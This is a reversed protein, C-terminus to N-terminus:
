IGIEDLLALADRVELEDNARKADDASVVSLSKVTCETTKGDDGKVMVKGMMPDGQVTGTGSVGSGTVKSGKSIPADKGSTPREVADKAFPNGSRGEAKLSGDTGWTDPIKAELGLATARKTIYLRIADGNKAGLGVAQIANGLDGSDAIPFSPDGKANAMAEGKALMAKLEDANYRGRWEMIADRTEDDYGAMRGELDGDDPDDIGLADLLCDCLSEAASALAKVQEPDVSDSNCYAVLSDIAADIDSAAKAVQPSPPTTNPHMLTDRMEVMADPLDLQGEAYRVLIGAAADAPTSRTGSMALVGTGPNSPEIVISVEPLDATIISTVGGDGTQQDARRIFGVSFSDFTGSMLQSWAQKANPVADFDDFGFLIDCGTADERWDIRHGLVSGIGSIGGGHGYLLTPRNPHSKLYDNFVGQRFETGYTDERNYGVIRAWFQFATSGDARIESADRIEVPEGRHEVGNRNRMGSAFGISPMPGGNAAPPYGMASGKPAPLPEIKTLHSAKVATHNKTPVYDGNETKSYVQVKCAPDDVTGQVRPSTDPVTSATHVSKIVGVAKGGSRVWKVHDGTTVGGATGRTDSM